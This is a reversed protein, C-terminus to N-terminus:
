LPQNPVMGLEAVVSNTESAIRATLDSPKSPAPDSKDKGGIWLLAKNTSVHDPRVITLRHKWVPHDVDKETRWMQSTLELVHTQYGEGAITRIPKWSYVPDPRAVYRDLATQQGTSAAAALLVLATL